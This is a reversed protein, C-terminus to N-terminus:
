NLQKNWTEAYEGIYGTEENADGAGIEFVENIQDLICDVGKIDEHLYYQEIVENGYKNKYAHRHFVMKRKCFPCPKLKDGLKEIKKM